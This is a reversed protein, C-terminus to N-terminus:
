RLTRFGTRWSPYAPRWGLEGRARRNSAGRLRTIWYVASRGVVLRALWAPVRWPPKAGLADALAPVWERMPAPEDDVVNYAAGPAGHEIAAVTASAADDVHVFSFVGSGAGVIPLRRKRVQEAQSGGPAYYTGPGYFFGYRLVIGELETAGRVREDADFAIRAAEDFPPMPDTLQPDSEDALGEGPAYMFAISQAIHRRADVRGAARLLNASGLRRLRNQREYISDLKRLDYNVPLDTLQDIVVEPRAETVAREIAERDLVDCVVPTAGLEEITDGRARSRTAGWVEHGAEVLQAVLPRGIAGTAGAVFVRM